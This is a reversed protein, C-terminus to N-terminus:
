RTIVLIPPRQTGADHQQLMQPPVKRNGSILAATGWISAYGPALFLM